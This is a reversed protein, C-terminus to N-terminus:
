NGYINKEINQLLEKPTPWWLQTRALQCAFIVYRNGTMEPETEENRQPLRTNPKTTVVTIKQAAQEEDVYNQIAAASECVPSLAYWKATYGGIVVLAAVICLRVLFNGM